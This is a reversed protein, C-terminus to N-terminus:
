QTKRTNDIYKQTHVTPLYRLTKQNDSWYFVHNTIQTQLFIKIIRKTWLRHSGPWMSSKTRKAKYSILFFRQGNKNYLLCSISSLTSLYFVESCFQSWPKNLLPKCNKLSDTWNDTNVTNQTYCIAPKSIHWTAAAAATRKNTETITRQVKSWNM